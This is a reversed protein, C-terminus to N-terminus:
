PSVAPLVHQPVFVQQSLLSARDSYNGGLFAIVLGLEPIGMVVQGGNGGAYFARVTRGRHPLDVVWWLHGYRIGPRAGGGEIDIRPGTSRAAWEPSLIRQHNWEGRDLMLQGLKLFDRPLLYIGGGMYAEDTPQLPLHYRHIGLPRALLRDFLSALPEGAAASLVAGALNPQVSCYIARQGPDRVMDLALTYRYWDPQETQEQMRDENGPSDPDRDDCDLGSSMTLLHELTLARRRADAPAPHGLARHVPTATDLPAGAQIAAGILVSAISKAASRLDHPRDRDFGHFYEEVVLVGRRAVLFAHVEPAHVSDMPTDILHQVFREIAARDIGADDLTGVPWGDSGAPPPAYAYRTPDRGRPYFGSHPDRSRRLQYTGGRLPLDLTDTRPDHTGRAVVEDKSAGLPRGILHIGTGRQEVRSIGAFIGANREPNRLFAASSPGIMLRMTLRDELPVLEGRWSDPGARTLSLPSAFPYGTMAGGPQTWHGTIRQGDPDLQGRFSGLQDALEFTIARGNVQVPATRGAIAARWAGARREIVLTGRVEPGFQRTAEWLGDLRPATDASSPQEASGCGAALLSLAIWGLRGSM